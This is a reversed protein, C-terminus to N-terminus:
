VNRSECSGSANSVLVPSRTRLKRPFQKKLAPSTPVASSRPKQDRDERMVLLVIGAIAILLATLTVLRRHAQWDSIFDDWFGKGM